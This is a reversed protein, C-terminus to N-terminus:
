HSRVWQDVQHKLTALSKTHMPSQPIVGNSPPIGLLGCILTQFLILNSGNYQHLLSIGLLFCQIFPFQWHSENEYWSDWYFYIM